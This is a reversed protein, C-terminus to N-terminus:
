FWDCFDTQSMSAMIKSFHFRRPPMTTQPFCWPPILRAETALKLYLEEREKRDKPVPIYSDPCYNDGSM